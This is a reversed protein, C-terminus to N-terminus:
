RKKGTTEGDQKLEVSPSGTGGATEVTLAWNGSVDVPKDQRAGHALLLAPFGLRLIVALTVLWAFRKM